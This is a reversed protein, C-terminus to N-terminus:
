QDVAAQFQPTLESVRENMEVSKIGVCLMSEEKKPGTVRSTGMPQHNEALVGGGRKKKSTALCTFTSPAIRKIDPLLRHDHFTRLHNAALSGDEQCPRKDLEAIRPSPAALFSKGKDRNIRLVMDINLLGVLRTRRRIEFVQKETRVFTLLVHLTEAQKLSPLSLSAIM